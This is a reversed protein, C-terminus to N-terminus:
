GSANRGGGGRNRRVPRVEREDGGQSGYQHANHQPKDGARREREHKSREPWANGDGAENIRTETPPSSCPGLFRPERSLEDLRSGLDSRLV